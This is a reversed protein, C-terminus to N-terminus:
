GTDPIPELRRIRQLIQRFLEQPVASEALQFIVYRGQSVRLDRVPLAARRGVDHEVFQLDVRQDLVREEGHFRQVLLAIQRLHAVSVARFDGVASAAAAARKRRLDQIHQLRRGSEFRHDPIQLGM